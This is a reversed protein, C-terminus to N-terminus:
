RFGHLTYLELIFVTYVTFTGAKTVNLPPAAPQVLEFRNM